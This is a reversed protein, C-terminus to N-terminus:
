CAGGGKTRRVVLELLDPWLRLARDIERAQTEPRTHTYVTTMGLVGAGGPPQHGLTIQRILPDVNADQLLTAFTHRWSKPCTGAGVQQGIRLYSQRIRDPDVLGADRWVGAAIRAQDRRDRPHGSHATREAVLKVLAAKDLEIRHTPRSGFERRVFVLGAKRTGLVTRILDRLESIIPIRREHRTKLHWGLDAQNGILVWGADLDLDEILLHGLEGPRMGTLALTAHIGFEWADTQALFDTATRETFVFIPKGDTLKMRDITLATFPNAAYPPLHQQKAAFGYMSRCVELVFQLGKDTLRRRATHPHGNPSVERQRLFSLFKTTSVEHAKLQRSLTNVFDVLHQTAARYRQVTALSSYVVSEHHQLYKTRLEAVGIPVFAFPTPANIALQGNIDSALKEATARDPGIRRRTQQGGDRYYLWWAGHHEYISVRGVRLRICRQRGKARRASTKKAAM